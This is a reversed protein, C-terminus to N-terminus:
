SEQTLHLLDRLCHLVTVSKYSVTLESVDGIEGLKPVESSNIKDLYRM